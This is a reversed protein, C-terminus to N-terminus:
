FLVIVSLAIFCATTFHIASYVFVSKAFVLIEAYPKTLIGKILTHMHTGKKKKRHKLPCSLWPLGIECCNLDSHWCSWGRTEQVRNFGLVYHCVSFGTAQECDLCKILGILMKASLVCRLRSLLPNWLMQHERLSGLLSPTFSLKRSFFTHSCDQQDPMSIESWFLM